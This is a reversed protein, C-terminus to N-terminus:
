FTHHVAELNHGDPDLVFAGYYGPHYMERIGPPGNDKGGAAIAAKYFADVEERSGAELCIHVTAKVEEGTGALWLEPKKGRGWGGVNPFEMSLAVGLPALAANYFTKSKEFDRVKIGVHDIIHNM